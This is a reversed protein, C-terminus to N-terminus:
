YLDHSMQPRNEDYYNYSVHEKKYFSSLTYAQKWLPPHEVGYTCLLQLPNRGGEDKVENKDLHKSVLDTDRYIVALHLASNEALMIDFM